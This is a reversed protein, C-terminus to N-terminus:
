CEFLLWKDCLNVLVFIKNDKIDLRRVLLNISCDENIIIDDFIFVCVIKLM